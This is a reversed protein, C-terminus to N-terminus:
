DEASKQSPPLYRLTFARVLTFAELKRSAEQSM